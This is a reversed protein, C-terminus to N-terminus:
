ETMRRKYLEESQTGFACCPHCLVGFKNVVNTWIRVKWVVWHTKQVGKSAVLSQHVHGPRVKRILLCRPLAGGVGWRYPGEVGGDVLFVWHRVLADVDENFITLSLPNGPEGLSFSQVYGRLIRSHSGGNYYQRLLPIPM